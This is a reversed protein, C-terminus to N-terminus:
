RGSNKLKKMGYMNRDAEDLLVDVTVGSGPRRVSCGMSLTIPYPLQKERSVAEIASDIRKMIIETDSGNKVHGVLLFEDGGYRCAFDSRRCNERLVDAVCTLAQDGSLHGFQDNIQKFHDVDLMIVFLLKSGKHLRKVEWSLQTRSQRRNYLGTLTDRSLQDSQIDIFMVLMSLVACIWVISLGYCLLQLINAIIIPLPFILPM